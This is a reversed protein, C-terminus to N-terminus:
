QASVVIPIEYNRPGTDWIILALPVAVARCVEPGLRMGTPTGFAPM